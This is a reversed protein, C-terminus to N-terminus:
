PSTPPSTSDILILPVHERFWGAPPPRPLRRSDIEVPRPCAKEIVVVRQEAPQTGAACGALLIMVLTMPLLWYIPSVNSCAPSKM